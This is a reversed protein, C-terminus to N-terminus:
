SRPRRELMYRWHYNQRRSDDIADQIIIAQEPDYESPHGDRWSSYYNWFQEADFTLEATFKGHVNAVNDLSLEFGRDYFYTGGFGSDVMERTSLYFFQCGLDGREGDEDRRIDYYQRTIDYATMGRNYLSTCFPLVVCIATFHDDYGFCVLTDVQDKFTIMIQGMLGTAARADVDFYCLADTSSQVETLISDRFAYNQDVITAKRIRVNTSVNISVHCGRKGNITYHLLPERTIFVEEVFEKTGAANHASEDAWLEDDIAVRRYSPVKSSTGESREIFIGYDRSRFPQHLFAVFIAELDPGLLYPSLLLKIRMGTNNVTWGQSIKFHESFVQHKLRKPVNEFGQPSAALMGNSPSEEGRWLFISMDSSVRMIEDQLRPFAKSGEGYLLPINVDFLGLLCYAQDEKRTTTRHAAWSMKEGICFNSSNFQRLATRPIGTIKEIKPALTNRSAMFQWHQNFFYAKRPALLEQLTWGRKFWRSQDLDNRKQVDFLYIYCLSAKEYWSYMSNIAESLEASSKQDICCTDVWAYRFRRKRAIKCFSVVKKHGSRSKEQETIDGFSLEESPKGWCHSLIAYAPRDEDGLFKEVRLTRTNLLWM